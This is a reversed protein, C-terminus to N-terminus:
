PRVDLRAALHLAGYAPPHLPEEPRWGPLEEALAAVLAAKYPAERNLGGLLAFRPRVDPCGEALRRAQEALKSTQDQLISRAVVDGEAAAEVVLPAMRQMPWSERYVHRVLDGPTAIGHREALLAGLRTAPGGDHLAAVARLGAQGLAHGSGEDGLLYGWGGARRSTGGSTRALVVSGTGAIVVLGSAGGFAGELAIEGDHVIRVGTLRVDTPLRDSLERRLQGALAAQDGPRGAGAVGACVAVASAEPLRGLAEEALDALVRATGELGARQLNAAPGCLRVDSGERGALRAALETKSGGADIGIYATPRVDM